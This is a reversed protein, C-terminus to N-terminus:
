PRLAVPIQRPPSALRLLPIGTTEATQSPSGKFSPAVLRNTLVAPMTPPVTRVVVGIVAAAILKPLMGPMGSIMNSLPATLADIHLTGVIAPLFLLMGLWYAGDGM